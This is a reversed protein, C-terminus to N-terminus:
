LLYSLSNDTLKYSRIGNRSAIPKLLGKEALSHLRARATRFNIHYRNILDIPRVDRGLFRTLQLIEREILPIPTKAPHTIISNSLTLQLMM